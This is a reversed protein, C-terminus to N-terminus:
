FHRFLSASFSWIMADNFNIDSDEDAWAFAISPMWNEWGYTGPFFMQSSFSLRDADNVDGFIPNVKDGDLSAYGINSVWRLEPTTYIYSLDLGFGDQAMAGGDLDRDIFTLSPRLSHRGDGFRALYGLEVRIIDGERNLLQRQAATLGLAEGSREEDIDRDRYTAKLEFGSGFIRDWTIRGGISSMGTDSRQQGVEYPDSWVETDIASSNLFAAQLEGMHGFDHQIAIKIDREFQLVDGRENGIIFHTKDNDLTYVFQFGLVPVGYSKDDPSGFDDITDDSLDIESVRALFNSEMHGGGVGLNWFGSWNPNGSFNDLAAAPLALSSMMVAVVFRNM